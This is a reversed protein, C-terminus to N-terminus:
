NNSTTTPRTVGSEFQEFADAIVEDLPAEDPHALWHEHAVKLAILAAGLVLRPYMDHEDRGTAETVIDLAENFFELFQTAQHSILSPSSHVLDDKCQLTAFDFREDIRMDICADRLAEWLPQERARERIAVITQATIENFDHLLAAEKNPFYNHFTRASVGAEAAIDEATVADIGGKEIALRMTAHSLAAKTAAKKRERLGSQDAM